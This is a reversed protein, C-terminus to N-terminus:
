RALAAVRRRVSTGIIEAAPVPEPALRERPAVAIDPAASWMRIAARNVIAVGNASFPASSGPVRSVEAETVPLFNGTQARMTMALDAGTTRWVNGHVIVDGVVFAVPEPIKEVYTDWGPRRAGDGIPIAALIASRRVVTVADSDQGGGGGFPLVGVLGDTTLTDACFLEVDDIDSNLIDSLRRPVAISDRVEGRLVVDDCVLVVNIGKSTSRTGEPAVPREELSGISAIM